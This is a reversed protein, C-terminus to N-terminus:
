AHIVSPEILQRLSEGAGGPRPTLGEPKCHAAGSGGHDPKESDLLRRVGLAPVVIVVPIPAAPVLVLVLILVLLDLKAMTRIRGPVIALGLLEGLLLDLLM